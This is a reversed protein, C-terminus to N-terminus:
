EMLAYRGQDDTVVMKAFKTPLGATEVIVWVGAEPGNRSSVVGGIDQKGIAVSPATASQAAQTALLALTLLMGKSAASGWTFMTKAIM